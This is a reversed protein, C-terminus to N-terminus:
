REGEKGIWDAVAYLSKIPRRKRYVGDGDSSGSDNTNGEVTIVEKEGWQDIFGCHAIRKLSPFYLGFITALQTNRTTLSPKNTIPQQNNTTRLATKTALQTNGTTRLATKTALQTNGTARADNRVSAYAVPTPTFCDRRKGSQAQYKTALQTNGTALPNGQKWILKEKPFLNAAWATRPNEVGAQGLVWCVFAACWAHGKGL